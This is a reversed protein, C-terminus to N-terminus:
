CLAKNKKKSKTFFLEDEDISILDITESHAINFLYPENFKDM